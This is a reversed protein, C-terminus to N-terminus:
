KRGAIRRPLGAIAEDLRDYPVVEHSQLPGPLEEQRLGATVPVVLKRFADAIGLETMLWPYDIGAPTVLMLVADATSIRERLADLRDEPVPVEVHPVPKMGASRLRREMDRALERDLPSHSLYVRYTAAETKM